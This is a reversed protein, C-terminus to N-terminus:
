LTPCINMDSVSRCIVGVKSYYKQQSSRTQRTTSKRAFCCRSAHCVHSRENWSIAMCFLLSHVPSATKMCHQLAPCCRPVVYTKEGRCCRFGCPGLPRHLAFGLVDDYNRINPTTCCGSARFTPQCVDRRSKQTVRRLDWLDRCRTVKDTGPQIPCVLYDACTISSM